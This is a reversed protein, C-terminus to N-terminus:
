IDSPHAIHRQYRKSSPLKHIVVVPYKNSIEKKEIQLQHLNVEIEPFDDTRLKFYGSQNTIDILSHM